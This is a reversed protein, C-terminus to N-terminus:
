SLGLLLDAHLVHSRSSSGAGKESAALLEHLLNGDMKPLIAFLRRYEEWALCPRKIDEWGRIPGRYLDQPLWAM